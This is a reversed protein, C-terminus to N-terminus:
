RSRRTEIYGAVWLGTNAGVLGAAVGAIAVYGPSMLAPGIAFVIVAALVALATIGIAYTLWRGWTRTEETVPRLPTPRRLVPPRNM